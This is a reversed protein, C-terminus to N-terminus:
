QLHGLFHFFILILVMSFKVRVSVMSTSCPILPPDQSPAQSDESCENQTVFSPLFASLALLLFSEEGSDRLDPDPNAM